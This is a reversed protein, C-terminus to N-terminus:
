AIRIQATKAAREAAFSELLKAMFTEVIQPSVRDAVEGDYDGMDFAVAALAAKLHTAARRYAEHDHDPGVLWAVAEGLADDSPAVRVSPLRAYFARRAFIITPKGILSAEYGATGSIAAVGLAGGIMQNAPQWCDVLEVNPLAMLQRYFGDDRRGLTKPHEKVLLRVGAPLHRSLRTLADLQDFMEPSAMQLATEPEKHLPFFVYPAAGINNAQQTHPGTRLRAHRIGRLATVVQSRFSAPLRAGGLRAALHAKTLRYLTRPFYRLSLGDRM